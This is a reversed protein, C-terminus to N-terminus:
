DFNNVAFRVGLSLRVHFNADIVGASHRKSRGCFLATPSTAAHDRREDTAFHSFHVSM